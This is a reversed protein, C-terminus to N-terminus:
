DNRFCVAYGTPLFSAKACTSGSGCADPAGAICAQLEGQSCWAKCVATQQNACCKEGSPCNQPGSCRIAFSFDENPPAPGPCGVSSCQATWSSTNRTHYACCQQAPLPCSAASCPISSTDGGPPALPGRTSSAGDAAGDRTGGGDATASGDAGAAGDTKSGGEGGNLEPDLTGDEIGIISGCAVVAAAVTFALSCSIIRAVVTVM